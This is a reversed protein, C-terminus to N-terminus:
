EMKERIKNLLDLTHSSLVLTDLDSFAFWGADGADDAASIVGSIYKAELDVIVYHYLVRGAQDKRIADFSLIPKGAKIKLGTEEMIEREAAEQLTEGLELRGGPIAWLGKGPHHGRKILLVRNDKIVVAGVGVIPHDPYERESM